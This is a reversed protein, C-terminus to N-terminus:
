EAYTTNEEIDPYYSLKNILSLSSEFYNLAETKFGLRQQYLANVYDRRASELMENVASGKEAVNTTDQSNSYSLKSTQKSAGCASFIVTSILAIPLILLKKM